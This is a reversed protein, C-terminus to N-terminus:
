LPFYPSHTAKSLLFSETKHKYNLFHASWRNEQQMGAVEYSNRGNHSRAQTLIFM